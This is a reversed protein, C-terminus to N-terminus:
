SWSTSTRSACRRAAGPAEPGRAGVGIGMVAPDVGAAAVGLIRAMPTSARAGEGEGRLAGGDGGRRRHDGVLEGGDRHGDEGQLGAALKALGPLTPTPGRTSTRRSSWRARAHGPGEGHLDGRRVPGRGVRARGAAPQAPRLRGAGRAPHPVARGPDRRDRGHAARQASVPLRGPVDRGGRGSPGHPLGLARRHPPLAGPEDVRRRGRARGRRRRRARGPVRPRHGQPQQRLGHERHLGPVEKPVGARYAVQRAVNPGGGAQRACGFITEDVAAAPVGARRLSEAAAAAGLEAPTLSALSGGFRGIPTRVAGAIVVERM